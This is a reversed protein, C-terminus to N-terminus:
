RRAIQLDCCTRISGCRIAPNGRASALHNQGADSSQLCHLDPMSRSEQLVWLGIAADQLAVGDVLLFVRMARIAPAAVEDDVNQM